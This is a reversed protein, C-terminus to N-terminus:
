SFRACFSLNQLKWCGEECVALDNLMPQVEKLVLAKRRGIRTTLVGSDM